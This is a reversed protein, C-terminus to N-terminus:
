PQRDAGKAKADRNSVDGREGKTTEENMKIRRELESRSVVDLLNVYSAKTRWRRPCITCWVESYDSYTKHYGNFASHNCRYQTVVWQERHYWNKCADGGSM